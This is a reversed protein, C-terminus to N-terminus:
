NPLVVKEKPSHTRCYPPIQPLTQSNLKLAQVLPCTVEFSHMYVESQFRFYTRGDYLASAILVMVILCSTLLRRSQFKHYFAFLTTGSFFSIPVLTTFSRLMNPNEVTSVFLPPLAALFFYIFFLKIERKKWNKIGILVGAILLLGILPNLAAKGPYNHRGNMDGQNLFFYLVNRKINEAFELGKQTTTLRQNTIINLQDIRSDSHTRYYSLLPSITLLFVILFYGIQKYRKQMVLISLPLLFFIRGPYYSHFALGSMVATMILYRLKHNTLYYALSLTSGLELATLFTAEFSFRAFSYFWRQTAFIISAFVAILQQNTVKKVLLYLLMCSFIGFIAAPLRLAFSSVGFIKFFGLILYFYLTSHGSAATVYPTYPTEQLSLAVKAFQLEDFALQSPIQNFRFFIFLASIITISCLVLFTHIHKLKTKM